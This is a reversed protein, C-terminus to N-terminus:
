VNTKKIVAFSAEKVLERTGLIVFWALILGVLLPALNTLEFM